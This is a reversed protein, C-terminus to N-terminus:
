IQILKFPRLFANTYMYRRPFHFHCIHSPALCIAVKLPDDAMLELVRGACDLTSMKHLQKREVLSQKYSQSATPSRQWLEWISFSLELLSFRRLLYHDIFSSAGREPKTSQLRLRFIGQGLLVEWEDEDEGFLRAWGRGWWRWSPWRESVMILWIHFASAVLSGRTTINACYLSGHFGHKFNSCCASQVWQKSFSGLLGCFKPGSSTTVQYENM